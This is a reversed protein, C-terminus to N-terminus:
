STRTPPRHDRLHQPQDNWCIRGDNSTNSASKWVGGRHSDEDGRASGAGLYHEYDEKLKAWLNERRKRVVDMM